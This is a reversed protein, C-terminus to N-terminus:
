RFADQILDIRPPRGLIVTVIDFRAATWDIGARRAYSRAARELFRRKDADVAREPPGFEEASRAKVEIFVLAEGDRAVLDIEGGGGRPRFNRAIITYGRSRLFRHALDEARRGSALRPEWRRRRARDRAADALRLIWHM